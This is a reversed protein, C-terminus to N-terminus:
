QLHTHFYRILNSYDDDDDINNIVHKHTKLIEVQEERNDCSIFKHKIENISLDKNKIVILEKPENVKLKETKVVEKVPEEKKVPKVPKVVDYKETNFKFNSNDNNFTYNDEDCNFLYNSM